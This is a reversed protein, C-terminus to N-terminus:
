KAPQSLGQGLVTLPWSNSSVQYLVCSVWMFVCACTCVHSPTWGQFHWFSFIERLSPASAQLPECYGFSVPVKFNVRVFRSDWQLIKFLLADAVQFVCIIVTFIVGPARLIESARVTFGLSAKQFAVTARWSSPMELARWHWTDVMPKPCKALMHLDHSPNGHYVCISTFVQLQSESKRTVMKAGDCHFSVICDM